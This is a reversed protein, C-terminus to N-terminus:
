PTSFDNSESSEGSGEKAAKKAEHAAKRAKINNYWEIRKQLRDGAKPNTQKLQEVYTGQEEPPMNKVKDYRRDEQKTSMSGTIAFASGVLSFAILIALVLKM